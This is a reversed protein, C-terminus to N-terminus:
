FMQGNVSVINNGGGEIKAILVSWFWNNKKKSNRSKRSKRKQLTKALLLCNAGSV